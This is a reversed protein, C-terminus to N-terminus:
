SHILADVLKQLVSLEEDVVILLQAVDKDWDDGLKRDDMRLFEAYHAESRQM